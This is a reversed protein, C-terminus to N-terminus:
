KEFINRGGRRKRNIQLNILIFNTPLIPAPFLQIRLFEAIPGIFFRKQRSQFLLYTVSTEFDDKDVKPIDLKSEEETTGLLLMEDQSRSHNLFYEQQGPHSINSSSEVLHFIFLFILLIM